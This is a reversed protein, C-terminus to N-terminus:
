TDPAAASATVQRRTEVWQDFAVQIEPRAFDIPYIEDIEVARERCFNAFSIACGDSPGCLGDISALPGWSSWASEADRLSVGCGRCHTFTSM